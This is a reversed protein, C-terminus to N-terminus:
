RRYLRQECTKLSVIKSHKYEGWIIYCLSPTVSYKYRSIINSIFKAQETSLQSSFPTKKDKWVIFTYL